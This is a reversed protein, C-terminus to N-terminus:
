HGWSSQPLQIDWHLHVCQLRCRSGHPQIGDAIWCKIHHQIDWHLHVCQLSHRSGHPLIGVTIWGLLFVISVLAIRFWSCLIHLFVPLHTM